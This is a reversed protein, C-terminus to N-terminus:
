RAAALKVLVRASADRGNMGQATRGMPPVTLSYIEDSSFLGPVEITLKVRRNALAPPVEFYYRDGLNLPATGTLPLDRIPRGDLMLRYTTDGITLTAQGRDAGAQTVAIREIYLRTHLAAQQAFAEGGLSLFSVPPATSYKASIDYADVNGRISLPRDGESVIQRNQMVVVHVKRRAIASFYDAPGLVAYYEGVSSTGFRGEAILVDYNNEVLSSGQFIRGHVAYDGGIIRLFAYSFLMVFIFYVFARIAAPMKAFNDAIMKEVFSVVNTQPDSSASGKAGSDNDPM